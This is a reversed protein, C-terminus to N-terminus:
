LREYNANGEQVFEGGGIKIIFVRYFGMVQKVRVLM